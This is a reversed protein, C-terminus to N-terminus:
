KECSNINELDGNLVIPEMAKIEDIYSVEPINNLVFIKKGLVHAFAMELFANGGIYGRVNNKEYNLILVADGNKTENYYWRICDHEIKVKSSDREIAEIMEKDKNAAALMADNIFVEHGNKELTQKVDLFKEAFKVSGCLVIKM